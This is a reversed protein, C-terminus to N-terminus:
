LAQKREGAASPMRALGLIPVVFAVLAVVYMLYYVMILCYVFTRKLLGKIDFETQRKVDSFFWFTEM